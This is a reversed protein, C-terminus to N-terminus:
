LRGSVSMRGAAAVRDVLWELLETGALVGTNVTVALHDRTFGADALEGHAPRIAADAAELLDADLLSDGAALLPGGGCRAVVEHAAASKTLPEPVAYVKRGQLSVRWGRPGCWRALAEVWGSPLAARDVVAYAFLDSATRLRLLFPGGSAALHSEIEALPACGALRARVTAAWDGDPVGDVLLHGGNSAIAYRPATGPLRIRALQEPTRTTTPVVVARSQLRQLAAVADETLFSLPAGQYIEVCLLRPAEHDPVRLDLAAASYIVTRDMDLCVVTM